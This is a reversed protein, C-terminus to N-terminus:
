PKQLELYFTSGQQRSQVTRFGARRALASYRDPGSGQDPWPSGYGTEISESPLHVVLPLVIVDQPRDGRPPVDLDWIRLVGQPRLIRHVERLVDPHNEPPIYMFAFFATAAAFSGDLFNLSRADMVIKLPGEPAEQLEDRNTDIAVVQPGMLRGIIGEGGGGMDLLRGDVEFPEM